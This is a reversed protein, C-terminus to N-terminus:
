IRPTRPTRVELSMNSLAGTAYLIMNDRDTDTTDLAERRTAADLVKVITHIAGEQVMEICADPHLALNQLAQVASGVVSPNDLQSALMLLPSVAGEETITARSGVHLALNALAQTTFSLVKSDTTSQCLQVMPGVAGGEVIQPGSGEHRALNVLALAANGLM